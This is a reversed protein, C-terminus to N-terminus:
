VGKRYYYLKAIGETLSSAMGSGIFIAVMVWPQMGIVQSVMAMIVFVTQVWRSIRLSKLEILQDMEDTQTSIDESTVIKNFIAFVIYLLIMGVIIIPIMWLFARGWFAFDNVLNPSVAFYHKYIYNAYLAVLLLMGLTTVVVQKEKDYIKTEM